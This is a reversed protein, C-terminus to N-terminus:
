KCLLNSLRLTDKNAKVYEVLALQYLAILQAVYANAHKMFSLNNADEWYSDAINAKAFEKKFDKFSDINLVFVTNIKSRDTGPTDIVQKIPLAGSHQVFNRLYYCM